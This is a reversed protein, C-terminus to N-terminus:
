ELSFRSASASLCVHVRVSLVRFRRIANLTGYFKHAGRGLFLCNCMNWCWWYWLDSSCSSSSSSSTFIIVICFLVRGVCEDHFVDHECTKWEDTLENTWENMKGVARKWRRKRWKWSHDNKHKNIWTMWLRRLNTQHEMASFDISIVNRALPNWYPMEDDLLFIKKNRMETSPNKKTFKTEPFLKFISCVKFSVSITVFRKFRKM